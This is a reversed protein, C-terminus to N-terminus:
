QVIIEGAHRQRYLGPFWAAHWPCILDAMDVLIGSGKWNEARLPVMCFGSLWFLDLQDQVIDFIVPDHSSDPVYEYVIAHYEEGRVIKRTLGDLRKEPPRTGPPLACLQEGSLMTWGYCKRLRPTASYQIAGPTNRLPQRRRGEDSFAYLNM